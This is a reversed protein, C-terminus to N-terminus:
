WDKDVPIQDTTASIGYKEQRKKMEDTAQKRLRALEKLAEEATMKKNDEEAGNSEEKQQGQQKQSSNDPQQSSSQKQQDQTQQSDQSNQSQQSDTSEQQLEKLAEKLKDMAKEEKPIAASYHNSELLSITETQFGASEDLLQRIKIFIEQNDTERDSSLNQPKGTEQQTIQQSVLASTKETKERNVIQDHILDAEKIRRGDINSSIEKTRQRISTESELLKKIREDLPMFAEILVDLGQLVAQTSENAKGYEGNEVLNNSQILAQEIHQNLQEIRELQSRDSNGAAYNSYFLM